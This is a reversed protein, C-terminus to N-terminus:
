WAKGDREITNVSRVLVAQDASGIPQFAKDTARVTVEYSYVDTNALHWGPQVYACSMGVKPGSSGDQMAVTQWSLGHDLRVRHQLGEAPPQNWPLLKRLRDLWHPEHDACPEQDEGDAVTVRDKGTGSGLFIDFDLSALRRDRPNGANRLKIRVTAQIDEHTQLEVTRTATGVRQWYRHQAAEPELRIMDPSAEVAQRRDDVVASEQVFRLLTENGRRIEVECAGTYVQFRPDGPDVAFPDVDGTRWAGTESTPRGPGHDAFKAPDVPNARVYDWFAPAKSRQWALMAADAVALALFALLARKFFRSLRRFRSLPVVSDDQTTPNM